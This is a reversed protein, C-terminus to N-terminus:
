CSEPKVDRVSVSDQAFPVDLSANTVSTRKRLLSHAPNADIAPRAQVPLASDRATIKRLKETKKSPLYEAPVPLVNAKPTPDSDPRVTM